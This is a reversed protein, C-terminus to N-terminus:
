RNKDIQPEIYTLISFDIIRVKEELDSLIILYNALIEFVTTYYIVFM